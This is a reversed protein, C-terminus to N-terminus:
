LKSNINENYILNEAEKALKNIRIFILIYVIFLIILPLIITKFLYMIFVTILISIICLIAYILILNALKLLRKERNM